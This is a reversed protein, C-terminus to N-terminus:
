YELKLDGLIDNYDDPNNKPDSFHKIPLRGRIELPRHDGGKEFVFYMPKVFMAIIFSRPKMKLLYAKKGEYEIEEDKFIKIGVTDKRSIIALDMDLDEEKEIIDTWKNYIQTVM